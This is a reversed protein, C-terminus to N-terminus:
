GKKPRKWKFTKIVNEIDEAWVDKDKIRYSTILKVMESSNCMLYIHCQVNGKDGTRVYEIDIGKSEGVNIWKCNPGSVFSYPGLESLAIDRCNKRDEETIYTSQNSYEVEGPSFQFYDVLVRSYTDYAESSLNSLNKQQFVAEANSLALNHSSILQTYEDYDHRLEMSPPISLSFADSIEYNEWGSSPSFMGLDVTPADTATAMHYQSCAKGISGLVSLLFFGCLIAPWISKRKKKKLPSPLKSMIFDEAKKHKESISSDLDSDDSGSSLCYDYKSKLTTDSLVLYAENLNILRVQIDKDSLNNGTKHTFDKYAHLIADQSDEFTSLGLIDYYNKM